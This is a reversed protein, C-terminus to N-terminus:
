KQQSMMLICTVYCCENNQIWLRLSFNILQWLSKICTNITGLWFNQIMVLFATKYICGQSFCCLLILHHVSFIRKEQEYFQLRKMRKETQQVLVESKINSMVNITEFPPFVRKVLDLQYLNSGVFNLLYM